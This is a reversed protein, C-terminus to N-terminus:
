GAGQSIAELFHVAAKRKQNRAYDLATDGFEDRCDWKAGYRLLLEIMPVSGASAAEMLPTTGNNEPINPDAGLRLLEEVEEVSESSVAEFLKTAGSPSRENIDWNM